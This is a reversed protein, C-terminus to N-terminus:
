RHRYNSYACLIFTFFINILMSIFQKSKFVESQCSLIIKHCEFTKGDCMIKIDSFENGQIFMKDLKQPLKEIKPPPNKKLEFEIALKFLVQKTIKSEGLFIKDFNPHSRSDAVFEGKSLTCGNKWVWEGEIGGYQYRLNITFKEDILSEGQVVNVKFVVTPPYIYSLKISFKIKEETKM